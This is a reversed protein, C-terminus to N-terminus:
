HHYPTGEILTMARYIQEILVVRAVAHNLVLDSLRVVKWAADRVRPDHGMPGGIAFVVTGQQRGADVMAAFAATDLREGREDLVVLKERPGVRALLREGEARRVADADGRFPENKVDEEALGGSRRLRKTWEAV